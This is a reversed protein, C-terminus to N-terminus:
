KVSACLSPREMAMDCANVQSFELSETPTREGDAMGFGADFFEQWWLISKPGWLLTNVIADKRL